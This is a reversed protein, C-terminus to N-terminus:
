AELLAKAEQLDLTEFGETFWAYIEALLQRATAHKRQSRWLRSLSMAARLELSKAQQRRAVQLATQFCAEAERVRPHMDLAMQEVNDTPGQADSQLLLEGKLRYIEAEYYREEREHVTVLAEDLVRLGEKVRRCQQYAEALRVLIHTQGLSAGMAHWAALGQRLEVIGETCRGQTALAWGRVHRGGELWYTFGHENSLMMVAEAREQALSAERRAQHLLAVYHIGLVLSHPRSMEEGLALAEQVRSLARDPYGLMWLVWATRGLSLVASEFGADLTLSRYHPLICQELHGLALAPEGMFFLVSGLEEHATELLAHDQMEEALTLSEECLARKTRLRGSTQYHHM